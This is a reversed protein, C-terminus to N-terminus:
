CLSFISIIIIIIITVITIAITMTITTIIIIISIIIIIINVILTSIRISILWARPRGAGRPRGGRRRPGCAITHFLM